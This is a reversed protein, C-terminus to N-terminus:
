FRHISRNGSLVEAKKLAEIIKEKQARVRDLDDETDVSLKMGALDIYGVIHAITFGAPLGPRRIFTTVHERDYPDLAAVNVYELLRRSIVECDMGDFSVRLREDVNSVYDISNKVAVNISKTIVPSPILPCDGTVRVIYDANMVDAMNKFRSLVDHEDGEIVRVKNEFVDKIPDGNPILLAVEIINKVYGSRNIYTAADRAADIVWQLMPKGCIDAMVKSPFRTSTSRAQIGIAVRKVGTM